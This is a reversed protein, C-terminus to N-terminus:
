TIKAIETAAIVIVDRPYAMAVSDLMVGVAAM